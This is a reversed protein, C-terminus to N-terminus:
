RIAIVSKGVARREIIARMLEGGEELPRPEAVLPTIEGKGCREFLKGAAEQLLDHRFRRYYMLVFGVASRNKVLLHNLPVRPVSDPGSGGAFGISLYRGNWGLSRFLPQYLPGAVPDLAVDTGGEGAASRLEDLLAQPDPALTVDAGHDLAIQRKPETSAVAIVRAGLAKGIEVAALGVGGAAGAVVLTEADGLRAGQVLALYSTLYVSLMAAATATSVDDPLSFVESAQATAREAHGGDYVLAAVRDGVEIGGVGEGVVSVRGAVEMGAAFPVPHKNQHLDRIMLTDVFSVGAHAVDILVEGPSAVPEPLSGVSLREPSGYESCILARM